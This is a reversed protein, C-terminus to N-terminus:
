CGWLHLSWFCEVSIKKHHLQKLEVPGFLCPLMSDKLPGIIGVESDSMEKESALGQGLHGLCCETEYEFPYRYWKERLKRSEEQWHEAQWTWKRRDHQDHLTQATCIRVKQRLITPTAHALQADCAGWVPLARCASGCCPRSSLMRSEFAALHKMFAIQQQMSAFSNCYVFKNRELFETWALPSKESSSIWISMDAGKMCSLLESSTLVVWYALYALLELFTSFSLTVKRPTRDEQLTWLYFTVTKLDEQRLESIWSYRGELEQWARGASWVFLVSSHMSAVGFMDEAIIDCAKSCISAARIPTMQWIAEGFSEVEQKCPWETETPFICAEEVKKQSAINVVGGITWVAVIWVKSYFIPDSIFGGSCPPQWRFESSHWQDHFTLDGILFASSGWCLGPDGQACQGNLAKRIVLKASFCPQKQMIANTKSLRRKHLSRPGFYAFSNGVIHFFLKSVANCSWFHCEYSWYYQPPRWCLHPM